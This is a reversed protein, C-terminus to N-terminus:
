RRHDNLIEVPTDPGVFKKQHSLCSWEALGSISWRPCPL